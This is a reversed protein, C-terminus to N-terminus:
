SVLLCLLPLIFLLSLVAFHFVQGKPEILEQCMPSRLLHSFPRQLRRDEDGLRFTVKAKQNKLFSYIFDCSNFLLYRTSWLCQNEEPSAWSEWANLGDLEFEKM